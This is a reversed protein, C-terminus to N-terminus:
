SGSTATVCPGPPLRPWTPAPVRNPSCSAGSRRVPSGYGIPNRAYAIPAGAAALREAVTRQLKPSVGLGGLGEPFHVWGLGKDYQAGLFEVASTTKPDHTALLEDILRDVQAEAGEAPANASTTPGTSTATM